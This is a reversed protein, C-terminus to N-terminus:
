SGCPGGRSALLVDWTQGWSGALDADIGVFALAVVAALGDRRLQEFEVLVAVRALDAVARHRGAQLFLGVQGLRVTGFEGDLDDLLSPSAM